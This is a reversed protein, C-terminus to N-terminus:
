SNTTKKKLISSTLIDGSGLSLIHKRSLLLYVRYERRFGCINLSGLANANNLLLLTTVSMATVTATDTLNQIWNAVSTPQLIVLSWHVM